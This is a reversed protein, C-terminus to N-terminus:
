RQSHGMPTPLTHRIAYSTLRRANAASSAVPKEFSDKSKEVPKKIHRRLGYPYKSYDKSQSSCIPQTRYLLTSEITGVPMGGSLVRAFFLFAQTREQPCREDNLALRGAPRGDIGLWQKEQELDATAVPVLTIGALCGRFQQPPHLHDIINPRNRWHRAASSDIYRPLESEFEKFEPSDGCVIKDGLRWPAPEAPFLRDISLEPM